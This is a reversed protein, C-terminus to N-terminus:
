WFKVIFLFDENKFSSRVPFIIQPEFHKLHNIMQPFCNCEACSEWVSLWYKGVYQALVKGCVSSISEWVSLWFKGVFQALVKWCVLGISEWVSLWYKGVYQALVKGCVLGFSEWM